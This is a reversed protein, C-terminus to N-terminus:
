YGDRQLNGGGGKVGLELRLKLVDWANINLIQRIWTGGSRSNGSSKSDADGNVGLSGDVSKSVLAGRHVLGKRETLDVGVSGDLIGNKSSLERQLSTINNSRPAWGSDSLEDSSCEGRNTNWGVRNALALVVDLNLHIDISLGVKFGVVPRSNQIGLSLGVALVVLNGMSAIRFMM